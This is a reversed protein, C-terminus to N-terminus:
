SVLDFFLQNAQLAEEAVVSAHEVLLVDELNFLGQLPAAHRQQLGAVLSVQVVEAEVQRAEERVEENIITMQFFSGGEDTEFICKSTGLEHEFEDIYGWKEGTRSPMFEADGKLMADLISDFKHKMTIM